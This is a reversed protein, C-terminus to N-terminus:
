RFTLPLYLFHYDPLTVTLNLNVIIGGQWTATQAAKKGGVFFVITEGPVGGEIIDPTNPDDGTVDLSYVTDGNYVICYTSAYQVGNIFASVQTGVPVKAGGM